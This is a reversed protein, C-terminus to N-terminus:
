KDHVSVPDRPKGRGGGDRDKKSKKDKGWPRVWRSSEGAYRFVEDGDRAQSTSISRLDTNVRLLSAGIGVVSVTIVSEATAQGAPDISGDSVDISDITGAFECVPDAILLGTDQDVEGVFYQAVAERCNYGNVMDLVDDSAGSLTWNMTRIVAGESRVIPDLAVIPGGGLFDRTGAGIDHGTVDINDRDDEDSCFHFWTTTAPTDIYKVRFSLFNIQRHAKGAARYSTLASDYTKM